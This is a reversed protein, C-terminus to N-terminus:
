SLGELKRALAPTMRVLAIRSRIGGLEVGLPRSTVPDVLVTLEGFGLALVSRHWVIERRVHVTATVALSDLTTGLV